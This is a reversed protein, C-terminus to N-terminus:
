PTDRLIRAAQELTASRAMARGFRSEGQPSKAYLDYRGPAVAVLTAGAIAASACSKECGSLHVTRSGDSLAVALIRADAKTDARGFSCGPSGACAIMSALPVAKDTIFGLTQLADRAAAADRDRVSPVLMGQWPTLRLEGDGYRVATEAAGLLMEPSLRGLPPVAGIYSLGHGRQRGIGVPGRRASPRRRWRAIAPDRDLRVGLRSIFEDPSRLAFLHRLRIIAPDGAALDRFQTAVAIMMEVADVSRIAGMAAVDRTETPPCGAFGIALRDQDLAALWIDHPHDAIAVDEGGDLLFSFKPSLARCTEDAQVRDLLAEALPQVDLIQGPDIGATPSVMVNRIDDGDPRAPGLGAGTLLDAVADAQALAIGRIQLNARNTVEIVGSGFRKVAAALARSQDAHLRGLPIRARCIGGDRAPVIRFLGPCAATGRRFAGDAISLSQEQMPEAGLM